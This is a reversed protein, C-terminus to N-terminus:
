PPAAPGCTRVAHHNFDPTPRSEPADGPPREGRYQGAGPPAPARGGVLVPLDEALSLSVEVNDTRLEYALLEVAEQVVQNLRVEGREPAQQRALALFNRVIRVCRDAGAM